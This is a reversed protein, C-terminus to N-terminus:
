KCKLKVGCGNSFHGAQSEVTFACERESQKTMVAYKNQSRQLMQHAAVPSAKHACLQEAVVYELLM